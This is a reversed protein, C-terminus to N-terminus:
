GLDNSRKYSTEHESHFVKHNYLGNLIVHRKWILLPHFIMPDYKKGKKETKSWTDETGDQQGLRSPKGHGYLRATFLSVSVLSLKQKSLMQPVSLVEQSELARRTSNHPLTQLVSKSLLLDQM